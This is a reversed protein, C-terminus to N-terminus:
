DSRHSTEDLPQSAVPARNGPYFSNGGEVPPIKVVRAQANPSDVSPDLKWGRGVIAPAGFASGALGAGGLLIFERRNM